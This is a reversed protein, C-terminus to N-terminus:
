AQASVACVVGTWTPSGGLAQLCTNTTVAYVCTSPPPPFPNAPNPARALAMRLNKVSRSLSLCCRCAAVRVGAHTHSLHRVIVDLM